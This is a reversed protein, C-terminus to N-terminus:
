QLKQRTILYLNQKKEIIEQLDKQWEKENFDRKPVGGYIYGYITIGGWRKSALQKLEDFSMNQKLEIDKVPPLVVKLESPAAYITAANVSLGNVLYFIASIILTYKKM